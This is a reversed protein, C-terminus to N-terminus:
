LNKWITEKYGAKFNLYRSLVFFYDSLRNIFSLVQKDVNQKKHIRVIKREARRTVTRALHLFVSTENGSPLIFNTLKPLIAEMTDIRKELIETQEKLKKIDDIKIFQKNYDALYSGILFLNNQIQILDKKIVANKIKNICIGLVANLEDVTGYADVIVNNKFVETKGLLNTKGKDGNKTYIKM